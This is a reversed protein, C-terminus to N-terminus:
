RKLEQFVRIACQRHNRSCRAPLVVRERRGRSGRLWIDKLCGHDLCRVANQRLIVGTDM